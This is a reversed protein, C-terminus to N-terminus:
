LVEGELGYWSSPIIKIGFPWILFILNFIKSSTVSLLQVVVLDLATSNLFGRHKFRHGIKQTETRWVLVRSHLCLSIVFKVLTSM